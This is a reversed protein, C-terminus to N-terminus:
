VAFWGGNLVGHRLEPLLQASVDQWVEQVEPTLRTPPDGLPRQTDPKHERVKAREPHSIFAGRADIIRYTHTTQVYSIGVKM